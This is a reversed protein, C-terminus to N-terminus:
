SCGRHWVIYGQLKNIEYTNTQIEQDGGTQQRSGGEGDQSGTTKRYRHLRSRTKHFESAQQIKQTGCKRVIMYLTQRERPSVEYAYHGGLLRLSSLTASNQEKESSLLVGHCVRMVDRDMGSKIVCTSQKWTKRVRLLAATSM